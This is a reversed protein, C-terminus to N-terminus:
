NYTLPETRKM